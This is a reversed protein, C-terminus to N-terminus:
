PFVNSIGVDCLSQKYGSPTYHGQGLIMQAIELDSYFIGAQAM